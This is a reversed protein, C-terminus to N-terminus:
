RNDNLFNKLSDKPLHFVNNVPILNENEQEISTNLLKVIAHNDTIRELSEISLAVFELEGSTTPIGVTIIAARLDLMNQQVEEAMNISSKHRPNMQKKMKESSVLFLMKMTRSSVSRRKRVLLQDTSDQNKLKSKGTSSVTSNTISGKLTQGLSDEVDAETEKSLKKELPDASAFTGKSSPLVVSVGKLGFTYNINFEKKQSGIKQKALSGLESTKISNELSLLKEQKQITNPVGSISADKILIEASKQKKIMFSEPRVSMFGKNIENNNKIVKASAVLGPYSLMIQEQQISKTYGPIPMEVRIYPLEPKINKNGTKKAIRDTNKDKLFQEYEYSIAAAHKRLRYIGSVTGGSEVSASTMLNRRLNSLTQRTFGKGMWCLLVICLDICDVVSPTYAGIPIDPQTIYKDKNKLEKNISSSKELAALMLDIDRITRKLSSLMENFFTHINDELVIEISYSYKGEHADRYLGYDKLLMKKISPNGSITHLSVEDNTYDKDLNYSPVRAVVVSNDLLEQNQGSIAISSAHKSIRNRKIIMEKVKVKGLILSKSLFRSITSTQGPSQILDRNKHSIELLHGLKTKGRVLKEWQLDFYVDHCGTATTNVAHVSNSIFRSLPNSVQKISNNKKFESVFQAEYVTMDPSDNSIDAATPELIPKSYSYELAKEQKQYSLIAPPTLDKNIMHDASIKKERTSIVSLKQGGVVSTYGRSTKTYEGIFPRGDSFALAKRTQVPRLNGELLELIKKSKLNGGMKTYRSMSPSITKIEGSDIMSKLDLQSFAHLRIEHVDTREYLSPDVPITVQFNLDKITAKGLTETKTLSLNSFIDEVSVHTVYYFKKIRNYWGVSNLGKLHFLGSLNSFRSQSSKLLSPAVIKGTSSKPVSLMFYVKSHAALRRSNKLFKNLKSEQGVFFADVIIKDKELTINGIDLHPFINRSTAVM